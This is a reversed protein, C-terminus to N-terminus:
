SKISDQDVTDQWKIKKEEPILVSRQIWRGPLPNEVDRYHIDRKGKGNNAKFYLSIAKKKEASTLSM